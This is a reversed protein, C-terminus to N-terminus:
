LVEFFKACSRLVVCFGVDGEGWAREGSPLALTPDVLKLEDTM